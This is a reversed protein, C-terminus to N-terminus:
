YRSMLNFSRIPQLFSSVPYIVYQAPSQSLTLIYRFINSSSSIYWALDLTEYHYLPGAPTVESLETLSTLPSSFYPSLIRTLTVCRFSFLPYFDSLFDLALGIVHYFFSLETLKIYM